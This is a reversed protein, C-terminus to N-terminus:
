LVLQLARGISANARNGPSLVAVGSNMGIAHRIPGNVVIIPTIGMTTAQIGHKNFADTCTAELATLVVPLYEPKCGAMVANIAVKEIAGEVLDPPVGAVLEDIRALGQCSALDVM